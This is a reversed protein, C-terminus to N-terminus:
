NFKRARRAVPTPRAPRQVLNLTPVGGNTAVGGSEELIGGRYDYTGRDYSSCGFVKAYIHSRSIQYSVLHGGNTGNHRKSRRETSRDM